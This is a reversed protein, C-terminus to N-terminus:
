AAVLSPMRRTNEHSETSCGSPLWQLRQFVARPLQLLRRLADFPGMLAVLRRLNHASAHLAFELRVNKLGRRKFRHLGQIGKLESFVPEVMHKRRRYAEQARPQRMVERAADKIVEDEYRKLTRGASSITCQSRLSCSGCPAGGYRTYQKGRERGRNVPHLKQGAPCRYRDEWEQYEFAAKALVKSRKQWGARPSRGEPCLVDEVGEELATELASGLFFGADMLLQQITGGIRKGQQLLGALVRPESSPDVAQAVIIRAENALVVGKYSPARVKNKLPQIVAEPESPSVATHEPSKGNARRAAVRERVAQAVREAQKAEARLKANGPDAESERRKAQARQEAAEQKVRRYRSAAAQVVTGDAAVSVSGKGTRKLVEQTLGEFFSETLQEAHENLFRGIVSHDPSIGGTIWWSRVDVQALTELQRLSGKGELIGFLILGLLAAPHYPRRGGGRYKAEYEEWPLSRLVERVRFVSTQSRSRLFERLSTNGILIGRPSPDEFQLAGRRRAQPGSKDGEEKEEMGRFLGLQGSAEVKVVPRKM